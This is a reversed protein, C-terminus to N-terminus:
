VLGVWVGESKKVVIEAPNAGSIEFDGGNILADLVLLREANNTAQGVRIHLYQLGNEVEGSLWVEFQAEISQLRRSVSAEAPAGGVSEISHAITDAIREFDQRVWFRASASSMALVIAVMALAAIAVGTKGVLFGAMTGRDDM